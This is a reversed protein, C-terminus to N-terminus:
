RRFLAGLAGMVVFIGLISLRVFVRNYRWSGGAYERTGDAKEEYDFRVNCHPCRDGAGINSPVTKGCNSCTGVEQLPSPSDYTPRTSGISNGAAPSAEYEPEFSGPGGSGPSGYGPSQPGVHNPRSAGSGAFNPGGYSPGRPSSAVEYDPEPPTYNGGMREGHDGGVRPARNGSEEEGEKKERPIEDARGEAMLIRAVYLQDEPSFGSFPYSVRQGEKLLEIRGMSFGAYQALTKRGQLDEWTRLERADGDTEETVPGSIQNIGARRKSKSRDAEMQERIYAKDLDSFKDYPCRILRTGQRLIVEGEHVRVYDASIQNGAVDVWKRAEAFSPLVVILALAGPLIRRDM